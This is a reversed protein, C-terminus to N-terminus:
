CGEAAKTVPMRSSHFDKVTEGGRKLEPSITSAGDCWLKLTDGTGIIVM